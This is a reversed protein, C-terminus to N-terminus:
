LGLSSVIPGSYLHIGLVLTFLVFQVAMFGFGVALAYGVRYGARFVLFLAIFIGCGLSLGLVICLLMLLGLWALMGPAASANSAAGPDSGGKSLGIDRILQGLSLLAGPISVVLPMIQASLTFSSAEIALAVFLISFFGSVLWPKETNRWM